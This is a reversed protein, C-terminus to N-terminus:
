GRLGKLLDRKISAKIDETVAKRNSDIFYEIPEGFHVDVDFAGQKVVNMLHPMLEISGPWAVHHLDLRGMPMGYLKNYSLTVPQVKYSSQSSSPPNEKDENQRGFHKGLAMNVGGLLASKFPYLTMGDTTTGEPFLIVNHGSKLKEAIAEAQGIVSSRAERNVFITNQTKAIFGIMPWAAMDQKAVFFGPLIAGMIPIDSWSVHNAIWLTPEGEVPTGTIHLRFGILKLVLRHWFKAIIPSHKPFFRVIVIQVPLLALTTIALITIIFFLRIKFLM